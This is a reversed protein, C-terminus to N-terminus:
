GGIVSYFSGEPFSIVVETGRGEGSYIKIDHGLKLCLKKSLYLGIGTARKRVRGNAGTFGKEFVRPLDNESIGCGNDKIHLAHGERGGAAYFEIVGTGDEVYQICNAVIQGLIFLLWKSDSYVSIDLDHLDVKIRRSILPKKNKIIVEGVLERLSVKKIIYDKEVSFSRAYYLATETYNEIKDLEEKVSEMAEGPNNEATLKGAAIPLKIEHIWMEIYDKYEENNYKYSNVNEAMSKETTELIDKLIRGETFRAEELVEPLLYAKDLEELSKYVVDYFHKRRLFDVFLALIYAGFFAIFIYVSVWLSGGDTLVFVEVTFVAFLFILFYVAHDKLYDIFRM